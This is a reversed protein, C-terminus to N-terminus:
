SIKSIDQSKSADNKLISHRDKNKKSLKYAFGISGIIKGSKRVFNRFDPFVHFEWYSGVFFLWWFRHAINTHAQKHTLNKFVTSSNRGGQRLRVFRFVLDIIGFFM